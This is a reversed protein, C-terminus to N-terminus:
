ESLLRTMKQLLDDPVFPKTICDNMGAEKSITLSDQLISATVAIIPLTDASIVERIKRTADLGNMVPMQIDMLVIHFDSPAELVTDCAVKGNEALTVKAGWKKLFKNFIMANVTNDEVLLVSKNELPLKKIQQNETHDQQKDEIPKSIEFPLSFYFISGHGTKSKLKIDSGLTQVLKKTIALSLGTGGEEIYANISTNVKKFASFITPIDKAPIGIGTDEVKFNIICKKGSINDLKIYLEVKGKETYKIANDCLYLLIQELKYEDGILHIPVDKDVRIILSIRKKLAKNSLTSKIADCIKDLRFPLKDMKVQGSELLNYDLVQNVLFLLQSSTDKLTNVHHKFDDKSISTDSQLINSLGIIASLPTRIEHSISSLFNNKLKEIEENHILNREYMDELNILKLRDAVLSAYYKLSSKEDDNLAGNNNRTISVVGVRGEHPLHIPVGAFYHSSAANLVLPNNKFQTYSHINELEYVLHGNFAYQEISDDFPYSMLGNEADSSIVHCQENVKFTLFANTSSISKKVENLLNACWMTDEHLFDLLENGNNPQDRNTSM